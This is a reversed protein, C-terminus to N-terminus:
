GRLCIPLIDVLQHVTLTDEAVAPWYPVYRWVPLLGASRAGVVDTNPHDGVFAAESADVGCRDLARRFIEADPKRVGEAESILVVDFRDALGLAALQLRQVLSGLARQVQLGLLRALIDAFTLAPSQVNDALDEPTFDRLLLRATHLEM